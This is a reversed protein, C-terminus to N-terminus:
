NLMLQSPPSLLLTTNTVLCLHMFMPQGPHFKADSKRNLRDVENVELCTRYKRLVHELLYPNTSVIYLKKM